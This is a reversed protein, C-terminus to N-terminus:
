EVIVVRNEISADAKKGVKSLDQVHEIIADRFLKGLLDRKKDKFFFCKDGGNALFDSLAIKYIKNKDIPAGNIEVDIPEGNKIKFKIHHSIPWGGYAAMRDFLKEVTSGDAHLVVLGNEFPMLEFIQARTIEGVPLSPIRLGGYNVVAFDIPQGYYEECKKHILDATWNGLESEPKAKPLEKAAIGIITKMEDNLQEKYPNILDEIEKSPTNQTNAEIQISASPASNVHLVKSCGALSFLILFFFLINKM